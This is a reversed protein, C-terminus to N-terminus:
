ALREVEERVEPGRAGDGLLVAAVAACLPEIHKEPNARYVELQGPLWSPPNAFLGAVTPVAGSKSTKM